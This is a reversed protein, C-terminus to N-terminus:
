VDKGESVLPESEVAHEVFNAPLAKSAKAGMEKLEEARRIINGRGTCLKALADDYAKQSAQLREGISKLDELFGVFKDYLEGSKRAIELANRSQNEQRWINGITRLTAILTSTTVIVINKEFAENYLNIDNKVAIAFAPELPIFMLVFDISQLQYINQYKKESLERIHKRISHLHGALCARQSEVDDAKCYETYATLSVKSDIVIHKNDPLHVIVDPKQTRCDDGHHTQQVAFHTGKVLGSRELIQELVLEGWDGQTKSQGKLATTLNSAEKTIQQNLDTLQRIQEALTARERAEKGYTDTITASFDKIKQELPSLVVALNEKNLQTFKISKEELIDNALNKFEAAFQSQIELLEDKQERLKQNANKLETQVSAFSASLEVLKTRESSLDQNAQHLASELMAAREEAKTKETTLLISQQDFRERLTNQTKDFKFKLILFTGFAGIAVSLLLTIIQSLDQTM